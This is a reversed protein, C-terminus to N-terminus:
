FKVEHIFCITRPSLHQGKTSSFLTYAECYVVPLNVTARQNNETDEPIRLPGTQFQNFDVSAYLTVSPYQHRSCHYLSPLSLCFDETGTQRIEQLYSM